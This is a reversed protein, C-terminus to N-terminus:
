NIGRGRGRQYDYLQKRQRPTQKQKAFLNMQITKIESAV